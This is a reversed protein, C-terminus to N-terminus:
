QDGTITSYYHDPIVSSSELDVIYQLKEANKRLIIFFTLSLHVPYLVYGVGLTVVINHINLAAAHFQQFGSIHLSYEALTIEM